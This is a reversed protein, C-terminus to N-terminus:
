AQAPPIARARGRLRESSGGATWAQARSWTPWAWCGTSGYRWRSCRPGCRRRPRAAAAALAAVAIGALLLSVAPGAAAVRGQARPTPLDERGHRLGGFFGVTVQSGQVGYRRAVLVHGLEHLILSGLVVSVMGAAALLYAFAPRGPDIDPLM